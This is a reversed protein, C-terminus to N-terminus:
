NTFGICAYFRDFVFKSKKTFSKIEFFCILGPRVRILVTTSPLGISRFVSLCQSGFSDIYDSTSEECSSNASAM